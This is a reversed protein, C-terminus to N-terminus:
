KTKCCFLRWGCRYLSRRNIQRGAEPSQLLRILKGHFSTSIGLNHLTVNIIIPDQTACTWYSNVGIHLTLHQLFVPPQFLFLLMKRLIFCAYFKLQKLVPMFICVISINGTLTLSQLLELGFIENRVSTSEQKTKRMFSRILHFELSHKGIQFASNCVINYIARRQQGTQSCFTIAM